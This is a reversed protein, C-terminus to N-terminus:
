GELLAADFNFKYAGSPATPGRAFDIAPYVEGQLGKFAVGLSERNLYFSLEGRNMDLLLGIVDGSKWDEGSGYEVGLVGGRSLTQSQYSCWGWGGKTGASLGGISPSERPSDKTVV